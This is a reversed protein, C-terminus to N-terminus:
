EYFFIGTLTQNIHVSNIQEGYTHFGIANLEEYKRLLEERESEDLELIALRRLICEFFFSLRIKSPPIKSNKLFDVFSSLMSDLVGITIIIGNEIACYMTFSGDSNVKQISRAYVNGGITVILPNLSFHTSNLDAEAVGLKRAYFSAAKEGDIEYIIRELPNSETVVHKDQGSLYHQTKFIKFPITTKLILLQAANLQFKKDILLKTAEFKLGDGASGGVIELNPFQSGLSSMILEEKKCLGDVFLIGFVRQGLSCDTCFDNAKSSYDRLQKEVDDLSQFDLQMVELATSTRFLLATISNDFFQGKFIEGSTTLAHVHCNFKESILASLHDSCRQPSVFLLLRDEPRLEGMQAKIDDLAHAIDEKQSSARSFHEKM